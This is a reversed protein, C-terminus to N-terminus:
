GFKIPNLYKSSRVNWINEYYDPDFLGSGNNNGSGEGIIPNLILYAESFNNEISIFPIRRWRGSFCVTKYDVLRWFRKWITERKLKRTVLM